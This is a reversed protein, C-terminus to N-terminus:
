TTAESAESKASSALRSQPAFPWRRFARKVWEWIAVVGSPFFVLFVVIFIGFLMQIFNPIQMGRKAPDPSVFFFIQKIVPKKLFWKYHDLNKLCGIVFAGFISGSISGIGGVVMMALYQISLRLDFLEPTVSQLNSGYLAGSIGALAGCLAFAKVKTNKLEVGIAEASLDRDRVAMMARGQRSRVLNRCLLVAILVFAWILWFYGANRSFTFGFFDSEGTEPISFSLTKGPLLSVSAQPLKTRGPTGGTVDAWANFVHESFVLLGLSIVALYDGRLRLAFPGIAGSILAGLLGACLVWVLFPLHRGGVKLDQGFYGTAYSGIGIFAAHGMSIQGAFGTLMNLALTGIAFIGVFNLVSLPFEGAPLGPILRTPLHLGKYGLWSFGVPLSVYLLFAVVVGFKLWNSRLTRLETGYSTSMPYKADRKAWVMMAFGGFGCFLLTVIAGSM